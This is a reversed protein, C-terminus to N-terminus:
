LMPVLQLLLFALMGTFALVGYTAARLARGRFLCRNLFFGFVVSVLAFVGLPLVDWIGTGGFAHQFDNAANRLVYPVAANAIDGVPVIFLWFFICSALWYPWPTRKLSLLGAMLCCGAWMAYPALSIAMADYPIGDPFMYQMYGWRGATPLWVFNTVIGGQAWVATCHALEHLVTVGLAGPILLLLHPWHGKFFQVLDQIM